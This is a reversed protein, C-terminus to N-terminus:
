KNKIIPSFGRQIEINDLYKDGDTDVSYPNTKYINIELDDYLTDGDKDIEEVDYDVEPVEMFDLKLLNENSIYEVNKGVIFEVEERNVFYWMRYDVPSVYYIVTPDSNKYIIKGSYDLNAKRNEFADFVDDSVPKAIFKFLNFANVYDGLYYRRLNIADVYWLSNNNQNQSIIKGRLKEAYKVDLRTNKLDDSIKLFSGIGDNKFLSFNYFDSCYTDVSNKTCIKYYYKKNELLGSITLDFFPNDFSSLTKSTNKLVVTDEGWSIFSLVTDDNGFSNIKGVIKVSNNGIKKLDFPIVEPTKINPDKNNVFNKPIIFNYVDSCVDELGNNACFKYYYKVDKTLKSVTEVINNNSYNTKKTSIINNKFNVDTTYSFWTNVASYDNNTIGLDSINAILDVYDAGVLHFVKGISINKITTFGSFNDFCGVKAPTYYCLSYRYYSFPKLGEILISFKRLNSPVKIQPTKFIQNNSDIINAYVSLESNGGFGDITAEIKATKEKINSVFSNSISIPLSKYDIVTFYSPDSCYKNNINVIDRVCGRFYYTKGYDLNKLELSFDSALTLNKSENISDGYNVNQGYEFYYNLSTFGGFSDLRANLKVSNQSTFEYSINNVIPAQADGPNVVVIKTNFFNDSSCINGSSFDTKLCIKYYYNTDSKLNIIDSFVEGLSTTTKIPTSVKNSYNSGIGYEFWYSILTNEGGLGTINGSLTASKDTINSASGISVSPNNFTKFSKTNFCSVSVFDKMCARFYYTTGFSLNPLSQSINGLVSSKVLPTKFNFNFNDTGYEFWYELGNSDLISDINANLTASNTKILTAEKTTIVSSAFVNNINFVFFSLVFFCFFVKLDFLRKM